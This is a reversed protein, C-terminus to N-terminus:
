VDVKCGFILTYRDLDEKNVGIDALSSKSFNVRFGSIIEFIKLIHKLNVM